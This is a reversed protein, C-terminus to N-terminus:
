GVIVQDSVSDNTADTDALSADPVIEAILYYLGPSLGRPLPLILVLNRSVAAGLFLPVRRAFLRQDDPSITLDTSAVVTFQAAGFAAVNGDNQLMLTALIARGPQVQLPASLSTLALDVFPARYQIAASVASNNSTNSEGLSNSEDAVAVIRFPGIALGRPFRVHLTLEISQGARILLRPDIALLPVNAPDAADGSPSLALRLSTQGVSPTAGQNTVSLRVVSVGGGLASPPVSSIATTLDPAFPQFRAVYSTFAGSGVGKSYGAFLLRGDPSVDAIFATDFIGSPATVVGGPAVTSDPFGRATLFRMTFPPYRPNDDITISVLKGSPLSIVEPSGATFAPPPTETAVGGRGFTRDLSGDPNFRMLFPYDIPV